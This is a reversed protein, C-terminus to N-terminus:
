CPEKTPDCMTASDEGSGAEPSTLVPLLSPEFELSDLITKAWLWYADAMEAPYLLTVQVAQGNIQGILVHGSQEQDTSIDFVMEFWPYPFESASDSRSSNLTWDNSEILGNPGTIMPMLGDTSATNAPLFVNVAAKDMDNGQPKFTFFVGVGEGSGMSSVQVGDPYQAKVPNGEAPGDYIQLNAQAPQGTQSDTSPPAPAAAPPPASTSSQDACATGITLLLVGVLTNLLFRKTTLM